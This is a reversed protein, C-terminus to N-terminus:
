PRDAGRRTPSSSSRSAPGAPRAGRATADGTPRPDTTPATDRQPMRLAQGSGTGEEVDLLEAGPPMPHRDGTLHCPRRQHQAAGLGGADDVGGHHPRTPDLQGPPAAPSSRDVESRALLEPEVDPDRASSGSHTASTDTAASHTPAHHVAASADAPRPCCPTSTCVPRDTGPGDPSRTHKAPRPGPSTNWRRGCPPRGRATAPGPPLGTRRRRRCGSPDPAM